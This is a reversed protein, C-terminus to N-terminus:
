RRRTGFEAFNVQLEDYLRIKELTNAVIRETSWGEQETLQYYLESILSLLPVEWLITRYWYGQVSVKLDEGEQQINVESPDYRYGELFDIYAPNLYPCKQILFQKEDKTLQLQAMQNVANRLAHDFGEPFKHDGRNIFEYKSQVRPFLKVVACQMTFKYFDNDLISNFISFQADMIM